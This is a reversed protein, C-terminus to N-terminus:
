RVCLLLLRAVNLIQNDQDVLDKWGSLFNLMVLVLCKDESWTLGIWCRLIWSRVVLKYLLCCRCYFCLFLFDKISQRIIEVDEACVLDEWLDEM